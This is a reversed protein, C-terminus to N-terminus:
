GSGGAFCSIQGRICINILLSIAWLCSAPSFFPAQYAVFPYNNELYNLVSAICAFSVVCVVPTVSFIVKRKRFERRFKRSIESISNEKSHGLFSWFSARKDLLKCSGLMLKKATRMLMHWYLHGRGLAPTLGPAADRERIRQTAKFLVLWRRM